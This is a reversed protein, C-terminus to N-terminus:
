RAYRLTVLFNTPAGYYAQDWYLSQIYKEGTLNRVNASLDLSPTIAYSMFADVLAYASQKTTGDFANSREIADQWRVSVGLKMDPLAAPRYSLNARLTQKPVFNRDDEGARNEIDLNTYGMTAQLGEALRGSMEIEFGRSEYNRGEYISQGSEVDFYAYESINLHETQFVAATVLLSQDFLYSKIGVETNKGEAPGLRRLDAGIDRNPMFTETHSAYLSAQRNIAFVAGAYPLAKGSAAASHDEGYSEGDSDWHVVRAGIIISLADTAKLRTAGYYALQDDTWDSGRPGDAFTPRPTDGEWNRFDGISPFGLGTTYDYLSGDNVDVKTWNLGFVADHERGLLNFKGSLFADALSQKDKIDYASAYGLLGKHTAPDPNSYMYFLEADGDIQSHSAYAQAQWDDGLQFRLEAFVAREETDWYAWDASTTAGRAYDTQSGDTFFMPLAGWLPSDAKSAQYSIGATLVANAALEATVVSYGVQKKQAYRNLHSDADENAVVIRADIRDTLTTEFDGDLRKLSFSGLSAAVSLKTNGSPRKRVLNITASPNGAGSMLGNAGRVIEIRDYTATDIDGEMNGYTLPIGVGDIQFNTIDFGRSTYYTRDTEVSEVQIGTATELSDDLNWLKFDDLQLRTIASVSQPTEVSTLALRTATNMEGVLYQDVAEGYVEITEITEYQQALASAAAAVTAISLILSRSKM